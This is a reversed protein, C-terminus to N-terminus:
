QLDIWLGVEQVPLLIGLAVIQGPDNERVSYFVEAYIYIEDRLHGDDIGEIKKQLRVGFLKREAVLRLELM